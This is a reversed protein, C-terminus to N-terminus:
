GANTGPTLGTDTNGANLNKRMQVLRAMEDDDVTFFYPETDDANENVELLHDLAYAMGNDIRDNHYLLAAAVTLADRSMTYISAVDLQILTGIKDYGYKILINKLAAWWPGYSAYLRPEAELGNAIVGIISTMWAAESTNGRGETLRAEVYSEPPQVTDILTTM